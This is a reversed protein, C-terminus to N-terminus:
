LEFYGGGISAAHPLTPHSVDDADSHPKDKASADGPEGDVQV